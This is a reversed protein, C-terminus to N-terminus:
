HSMKGTLTVYGKAPGSLFDEVGALTGSGRAKRYSGTGGTITFSGNLLLLGIPSLTATGSYSMVVTDGNRATLVFQTSNFQFPPTFNPDASRICDVSAVSFAGIVSAVGHGSITGSATPGPQSSSPQCAADTAPGLIESIQATAILLEHGAAQATTAALAGALLAAAALAQRLSRGARTRTPATRPTM